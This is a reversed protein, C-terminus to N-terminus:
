RSRQGLKGKDKRAHVWEALGAGAETFVKGGPIADTAAPINELAREAAAL